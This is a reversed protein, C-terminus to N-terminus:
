TNKSCLLPIRQRDQQHRSSHYFKLLVIHDKHVLWIQVVIYIIISLKFLYYFELFFILFKRFIIYNLQHYFFSIKLSFSILVKLISIEYFLSFFGSPSSILHYYTTSSSSMKAFKHYILYAYTIINHM